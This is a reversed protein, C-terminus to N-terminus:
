RNPATGNPLLEPGLVWGHPLRLDRTKIKEDEEETVEIVVSPFRVVPPAAGLTIPIIGSAPTEPNVELLKVPEDAADENDALVRVVTRIGPDIRVHAYALEQAVADKRSMLWLITRLSM